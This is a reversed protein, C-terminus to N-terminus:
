WYIRLAVLPGQQTADYAYHNDGSRGNDYDFNMYRYGVLVSGWDNFRYDFSLSANVATNDSDGYGYDGRGIFTWTDTLSYFLRGGAFGQWWDEDVDEDLEIPPGVPPNLGVDMELEHRNYRAGGILEWRSKATEVVAYGAGLEIMTITFNIENKVSAPPMDQSIKVTPELEAYQVETLLAWKGKRADAHLSFVAEVNELIDDRFDLDLPATTGGITADGDISVGWLFMPSVAFEWEDAATETAMALTNAGTLLCLGAFIRKV